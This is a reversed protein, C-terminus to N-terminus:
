FMNSNVFAGGPHETITAYQYNGNVFGGITTMNGTRMVSFNSCSFGLGVDNGSIETNFLCDRIEKEKKKELILNINEIHKLFNM